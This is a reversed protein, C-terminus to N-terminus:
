RACRRTTSSTPSWSVCAPRGPASSAPTTTARRPWRRPARGTWSRRGATCTAPGRRGASTSSRSSPATPGRSTPPAARRAARVPRRVPEVAPRLALRRGLFEFATVHAHGEVTGLVDAEPSAGSFPQARRRRGAGRPLCRLRHRPRLHGARQTGTGANTMTFGQASSGNVTWETAASPTSAGAFNGTGDDSLYDGQPGYLLYVGLAAAQM